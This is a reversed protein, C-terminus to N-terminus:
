VNYILKKGEIAALVHMTILLFTSADGQLLGPLTQLIPTLEYAIVIDMPIGIAVAGVVDMVRHAGVKIRSWSITISAISTVILAAITALFRLDNPTVLYICM